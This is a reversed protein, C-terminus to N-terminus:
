VITLPALGASLQKIGLGEFAINLVTNAGAGNVNIITGIGFKPHKVKVGVKFASIDKGSTTPKKVPARTASQFMQSIKMPFVLPLRNM